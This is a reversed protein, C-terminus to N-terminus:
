HPPWGAEAPSRAPTPEAPAGWSGPRLYIPNSVIWPVPPDGPAGPLSVEVRFTGQQGTADFTLEPSAHHAVIRGDRRLVLMAGPANTRAVLSSGAGTFEFLAPAALADIASYVRGSRLAALIARADAPADKVLPRELVVRNSFAGFPPATATHAELASHSGRACDAALWARNWASKEEVGIRPFVIVRPSAAIRAFAPM